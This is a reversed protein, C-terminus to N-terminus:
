PRATRTPLMQAEGSIKRLTVTTRTAQGNVVAEPLRLSLEDGVIEFFRRFRDGAAAPQLSALLYHHVFGREPFTTFIGEYCVYGAMAARAEDATPREEAFRRRPPPLFHVAVHGSPTYVIMSKDRHNESILAGASTARKESTWEWFGVLRRDAASMSELAPAREWTRRIRMGGSSPWTTTMRDGAMTFTVTEDAGMRNPNLGGQVRHVIRSASEGAVVEYTGFFGAVSNFTALAEEPTAQAARNAPRGGRTAVMMVHGAADYVLLGRPAATTAIVTDAEDRRDEAALTWAGVLDAKGPPPGQAAGLGGAIWVAAVAACLARETNAKAKM